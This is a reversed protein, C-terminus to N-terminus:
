HDLKRRAEAAKAEEYKQRQTESFLQLMEAEKRKKIENIQAEAAAGDNTQRLKEVESMGERFIREVQVAQEDTLEIASRLKEITEKVEKESVREQAQAVQFSFLALAVILLPKVLKM